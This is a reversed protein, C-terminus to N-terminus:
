SVADHGFRLSGWFRIRPRPLRLEVLGDFGIPVGPAPMAPVLRPVAGVQRGVVRPVLFRERTAALGLASGLLVGVLGRPAVGATTGM